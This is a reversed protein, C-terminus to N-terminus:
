QILQPNASLQRVRDVLKQERGEIASRQLELSPHTYGLTTTIRSHRLQAQAISPHVGDEALMTAMGHRFAHLGCRPINLADLAPWLRYVVVANCSAPRGNRTTFIFSSSAIRSDRILSSLATALTGPMPILAESGKTKTTQVKGCWVSRSIRIVGATFDIDQPQLGLAEGARIGTLGLVMFFTRWPDKVIGLIRAVQDTDLYKAPVPIGRQPLRLRKMEVEATTYGWNKATFLISSLTTLVNTVTKKSLGDMTSIFRQQNETGLEELRMAGLKPLIHVRLHSSAALVSSPKSQSLVERKWAEVFQALTTVREPKYTFANIPALIPALQRLALRKTPLEKRTGLLVWVRKREVKGDMNIVDKRYIGYCRDNRYV